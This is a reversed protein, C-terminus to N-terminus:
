ELGAHFYIISFPVSISTGVKTNYECLRLDHFIEHAGAAGTVKFRIESCSINHVGFLKSQKCSKRALSGLEM